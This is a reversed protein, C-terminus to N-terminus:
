SIKLFYNAKTGFNIPRSFSTIDNAPTKLTSTIINQFTGDPLKIRTNGKGLGSLSKLNTDLRELERKMFGFSPVYVTKTGDDTLIELSM